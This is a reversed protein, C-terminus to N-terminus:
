GRFPALICIVPSFVSIFSVVSIDPFVLSIGKFAGLLSNEKVGCLLTWGYESYLKLTLM